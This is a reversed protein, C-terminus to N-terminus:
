KSSIRPLILLLRIAPCKEAEYAKTLQACFDKIYMCVYLCVCTCVHEKMCCASQRLIYPLNTPTHPVYTDGALRDWWLVCHMCM